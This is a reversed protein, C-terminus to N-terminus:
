EHRSGHAVGGTHQSSGLSMCGRLYDCPNSCRNSLPEHKKTVSMVQINMLEELSLERLYRMSVAAQQDIAAASGYCFLMLILQLQYFMSHFSNM